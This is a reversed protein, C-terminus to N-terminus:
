VAKWEPEGEIKPRPMNDRRVHYTPIEEWELPGFVSELRQAMRESPNADMQEWQCVTKLHVNCLHALERQTLELRHRRWSIVAGPYCHPIIEKPMPQPKGKTHVGDWEYILLEGTKVRLVPLAIHGTRPDTLMHWSALRYGEPLPTNEAAKVSYDPPTVNWKM